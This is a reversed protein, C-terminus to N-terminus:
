PPPTMPPISITLTAAAEAFGSLKHLALSGSEPLEAADDSIAVIAIETTPRQPSLEIRLPLNPSLDEASLSGGAPVTLSAAIVDIPTASASIAITASGGERLELADPAISLIPTDNAPISVSLEAVHGRAQGSQAIAIVVLRRERQPLRDEPVGIEVTRSPTDPGLRLSLPSVLAADSLAFLAVAVVDDLASTAELTITKTSGETVSLAAPVFRLSALRISIARSLNRYDSDSLSNSVTITITGQEFDDPVTYEIRQPKQYNEPEFVLRSVSILRIGLPEAVVNLAVESDPKGALRLDLIHSHGRGRRNRDIYHTDGPTTSSDLQSIAIAATQGNDIILAPVRIAATGDAYM